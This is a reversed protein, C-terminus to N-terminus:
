EEGGILLSAVDLMCSNEGKVYILTSINEGAHGLSVVPDEEPDYEQFVGLSLSEELHGLGGWIVEEKLPEVKLEVWSDTNRVRDRLSIGDM